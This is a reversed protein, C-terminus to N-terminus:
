ASSEMNLFEYIKNIAKETATGPNFFFRQAFENRVEQKEEPSSLAHDIANQLEQPKQVVDGVEQGWEELDSSELERKHELKKHFAILRPVDFLVIPRNLLSFENVVSSIDSVLLDSVYLYPVVDYDHIVRVRENGAYQRLRQIWDQKIKPKWQKFARDHLKILFNVPM